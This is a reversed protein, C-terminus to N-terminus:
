EGMLRLLVQNMLDMGKETLAARGGAVRLLGDAECARVAGGYRQGFKQHFRNEWSAIDLGERLRLALMVSEFAAEEESLREEVRRPRVGRAVSKAYAEMAEENAYRVRGLLSRAGLGFGAYEGGHWYVLNHRCAQGARAFNSIEYQAFGAAGLKERATKYMARECTEDPLLLRAADLAGLPTNEEVILGYCSVHTVSLAIMADLTEEWQADTQAPLGFMIDANINAFGAEQAMAIAEAAERASHIRGLRHLLADQMAQVGLSIRTVGAARYEQLAAARLTGPNGEITIEADDGIRLHDRLVRLLRAIAGDFLVTPTGGGIFVSQFTREALEPAALAIEGALADTYRRMAEEGYGGFSLFDCYACKQVCFPIHIYIGKDAM